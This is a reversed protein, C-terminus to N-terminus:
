FLDLIILSFYELKADFLADSKMREMEDKHYEIRKDRERKEEAKYTETIEDIEETTFKEFIQVILLCISM